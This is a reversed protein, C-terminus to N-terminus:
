LSGPISDTYASNTAIIRTMLGVTVVTVEPLKGKIGRKPLVQKFDAMVKKYEYYGM